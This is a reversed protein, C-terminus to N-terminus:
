LFLVVYLLLINSVIEMTLITKLCCLCFRDNVYNTNFMYM